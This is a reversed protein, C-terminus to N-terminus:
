DDGVYFPFSPNQNQHPQTGKDEESESGAVNEAENAIVTSSSSVNSKEDAAAPKVEAPKPPEEEESESSSSPQTLEEASEYGDVFSKWRIM